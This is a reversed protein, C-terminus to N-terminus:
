RVEALAQQYASALRADLTILPVGHALALWLYSADYATIGLRLALLVVEAFDLAKIKLDFDAFGAWQSLILTRSEPHLRAKKWAINALEFPILAPALLQQDAIVADVAAAEPEAFLM